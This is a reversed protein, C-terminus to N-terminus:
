IFYILNDLNFLGRNSKVNALSPMLHMSRNSRVNAFHGVSSRLVAAGLTLGITFPSDSYLIRVIYARVSLAPGTTFCIGLEFNDVRPGLQMESKCIEEGAGFM